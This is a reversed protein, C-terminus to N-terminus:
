GYYADYASTPVQANNMVTGLVRAGVSELSRVSKRISVKRTHRADLVLLVGDSHRAVIIPDAVFQIPPTDILVYEFQRRARDIFGAFQQSSLLEAPSPLIPGATILKLGPLPEQCVEQLDHEGILVNVLGNLNRVGFAKHMAPERLDCDVILTSNLQALAVALNASTTTKGERRGPSTIVIVRPSPDVFSYLLNTRLARYAEASSGSPERTLILSNSLDTSRVKNWSKRRKLKSLLTGSV